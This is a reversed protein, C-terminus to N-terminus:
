GFARRAVTRAGGHLVGSLLEFRERLGEPSFPRRPERDAPRQGAPILVESYSRTVAGELFLTVTLEDAVAVQHFTLAAQSYAAGAGVELTAAPTLTVDEQPRLVWNDARLPTSDLYRTHPRGGEDRQFLTARVLGAVVVSSFAFRHNHVHERGRADGPWWVHMRLRGAPYRSWLVYKDFGLPHPYSDAAIQRLGDEDRAIERLLGALASPTVLRSLAARQREARAVMLRSVCTVLDNM